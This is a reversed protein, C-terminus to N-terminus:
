SLMTVGPCCTCCFALTITDKSGIQNELYSTHLQNHCEVELLIPGYVPGRFRGAQKTQQVWEYAKRIGDGCKLIKTLTELRQTKVNDIHSLQGTPM